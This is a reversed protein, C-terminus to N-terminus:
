LVGPTVLNPDNFPSAVVNEARAVLEAYREPRMNQLGIWESRLGSTLNGAEARMKVLELAMRDQTAADFLTDPPLGLRSVLTRMTSGIIQYRGVAHLRGAAIWSSNTMSNNEQLSMIEGITMTTLDRGDHQSMQRFDGSFGDGTSHGGDLGMQNVANYGAAGSEKSAIADLVWKFDGTSPSVAIAAQTTRSASQYRQLLEQVSPPFEKIALESEPLKLDKIDIGAAQAQALVLERPSFYQGEALSSFIGPMSGKGTRMFELATELEDRTDPIVTNFNNEKIFQRADKAKTELSIKPPNALLATKPLTNLQQTAFELAEANNMGQRRAQLYFEKYRAEANRFARLYEPSKTTAAGDSYNLAVRAAAEADDEIRSKNGVLDRAFESSTEAKDAYEAQLNPPYLALKEPTLEGAEYLDDLTQRANDLQGEEVTYIATDLIKPDTGPPLQEKFEALEADTLSRGLQRQLGKIDNVMGQIIANDAQADQAIASTESAELESEFTNREQPFQASLTTESGDNWTLPSEDFLTLAQDKSMAGAKVQSKLYAYLAERAEKKTGPYTQFFSNIAAPDNIQLNAYLGAIAGDKQETEIRENNATSWVLADENISRRMPGLLYKGAVEDNADPAQKLYEQAVANQWARYEADSTATDPNIEKGDINITFGEAKARQLALPFAEGMKTMNGIYQGYGYWGGQNRIVNRNERNGGANEYETATKNLEEQGAALLQEEANVVTENQPDFGERLSDALGKARQSENVKKQTSVLERMLTDSLQALEGIQQLEYKANDVEQQARTRVSREYVDRTNNSQAIAEDFERVYDVAKDPRFTEGQATIQYQEQEM